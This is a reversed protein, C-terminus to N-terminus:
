QQRAEDLLRLQTLVGHAAHYVASLPHRGDHLIPEAVNAAHRGTDTLARIVWRGDAPLSDDDSRPIDHLCATVTSLLNRTAIAVNEHFGAGIIGGGNSTYLSTTDDALAVLTATGNAAGLEVMVGWVPGRRSPDLGLEYAQMDLITRRLGAYVQQGKSVGDNETM